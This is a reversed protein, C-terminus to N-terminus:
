PRAKRYCVFDFRIGNEATHPERMTERWQRRSFEPFFADGEYPAAIETLRLSDALPLAQRYIDAGGIVVAEPAGACAALADALSAFTEAGDAAYGTQRSVVMNRRQPLPRRPLSEWTKRGMLVPKGLTYQKFFAFDEPLHWPLRNGSGICRNEAVAALLTIHPM